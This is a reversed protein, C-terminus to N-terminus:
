GTPRFEPSVRGLHNEGDKGLNIAKFPLKGLKGRETTYTEDQDGWLNRFKWDCETCDRSQPYWSGPACGKIVESDWHFLQLWGFGIGRPTTLEKDARAPDDLVLQYDEWTPVLLRECGYFWEKDLKDVVTRIGVNRPVYTDADMIAVWELPRKHQFQSSMRAYQLGVNLGAGKNFTTGNTYFADTAVVGIGEQECLQRTRTDRETTVVVMSDFEARNHTLTLTLFDSYDVCVTIYTINSM